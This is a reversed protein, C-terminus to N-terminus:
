RALALNMSSIVSSIRTVLQDPLSILVKHM